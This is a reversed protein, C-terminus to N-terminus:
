EHNEKLLKRNRLWDRGYRNVFTYRMADRSHDHRGDKIPKDLLKVSGSTTKPYVSARMDRYHIPCREKNILFRREKRSNYLFGNIIQIGLPIQRLMPNTTFCVNFGAERLYVIDSMYTQTQEADGAPDVYLVDPKRGYRMLQEEMDYIKWGYGRQPCWEDLLCERGSQEQYFGVAPYQGGFDIGCHFLGNADIVSEILNGDPFLEWKASHFVAGSLKVLQGSIYCLAEEGSYMREYSEKVSEDLIYNHRMDMNWVKSDPYLALVDDIWPTDPTTTLIVAMQQAKPDSVRVILQKFQELTIDEDAGGYGATIGVLSTEASRFYIEGWPLQLTRDAKRYRKAFDLGNKELITRWMPILIDRLMPYSPAVELGITNPNDLSLQLMKMVHVVTKGSRYGGLAIMIESKDRPRYFVIEEQPSPPALLSHEINIKM